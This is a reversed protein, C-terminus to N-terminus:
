LTPQSTETEGRVITMFGSPAAAGSVVATGNRVPFPTDVIPADEAPVVVEPEVVATEESAAATTSTTSTSTTTVETTQAADAIVAPIEPTM